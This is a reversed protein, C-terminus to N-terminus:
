SGRAAVAVGDSVADSPHVLVEDGEGLGDVVQASLGNRAGISVPRLSAVDAVRTFVAWGDGHRFLASTPVQLVEDEGWVVVRVEVRFGDGLAGWAERAEEVDVIVNVRQEEVGLASVKTFGSPEVRRVKGRLPRDGGWQEILVPQGAEIKVADMSLYDSVIELQSADGIELLPEGAPVVSESERLRRLVVGDVPATLTLPEGANAGPDGTAQLLQARAAALDHEAARIAFAAASVNESLREVDLQAQDLAEASVVSEAALRRQRELHTEAYALEADVTKADARARGLAAQAAEVRARAAEAQRADLPAPASPQFTALATVGASVGDGPELEIRLLRGAVPASVVFRDRVRTEGEEDLTVQLPGTTVVAFDAPVPQPRMLIALVVIVALAAAAMVARRRWVNKSANSM